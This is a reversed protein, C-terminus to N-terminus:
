RTYIPHEYVMRALVLEPDVAAGGNLTVVVPTTTPLSQLRNMSYSIRVGGTATRCTPQSYNWAARIHPNAPLVSADTHLVAENRTYAFAGLLQREQVTPRELLRLAQDAHTAVVVGAFDHAAGTVDRITVGDAHRQVARVAAGARVTGLKAAVAEVYSRSGGRVTRWGPSRRVQLMTHNDLFAFLYRAPYDSALQPGCSWVAAVLPAVFHDTFHRSFRGAALFEGITPQPTDAAAPQALLRRARRYFRPVQGLLALHRGRAALSGGRPLLGAPGRSGAYALGCGDCRVSMSMAAPRTAVGLETFLGGLLPYTRANHVIFGSDVPLVGGDTPVDHTHAHGGLRDDAEFLTVDAVRQLLHAATLGAVGAGVVAVRPPSDPM